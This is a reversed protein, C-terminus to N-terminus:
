LCSCTVHEATVIQITADKCTDTNTYIGTRSPVSGTVHDATIVSYYIYICTYIYM